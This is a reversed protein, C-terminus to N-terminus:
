ERLRAHYTQELKAIIRSHVADVEEDELTKDASRYSISFALSKKDDPINGGTFLDFVSVSEILAGGTELIDRRLTEAAATMDVILAIDRTSGPFRPLPVFPVIGRDSAILASVSLEAAYCDQKIDFLKAIKKDVRGITGLATDGSQINYARSKDYGAMKAPTLQCEPIRLRECLGGLIGKLEFLDAEAPADKWYVDGNKGSILLGCYEPEEPLEDSRIYVKGIEFLKIDINRHRINQSAAMMLSYLLRTRMFGFDDSIPNTITIPEINPEVKKMVDPKAFGTGLIEEFGFGTLIDRLDDRMTDRRHTPAFLPGKNSKCNPIKDLGYVRGIEEILDVERTLDPRYTPVTVKWARGAEVQLGLGTLTTIMFETPIDAGILKVAREPRLTVTIPDIRKAYTDVVGALVEGGALEAMLAAARDAARIPSNPDLGREFRFSAETNYGLKNRSKRIVSANFYASELLINRTDDEVESDLGGMVGGTAVGEKGNTIMLIDPDLEHVKGDLTTFKEGMKARRVVVEKSGFRDYDFAHLPQNMELMVYNCIDVINNIPRIGSDKLRKQMWDPSPGVKVNKIIRACYRPCADPDDISIKIYDSAKESSEAPKQVTPTFTGGCVVSIERAIGEACLCDPRNPTIEFNIIADDLGLTEFVPQNIPTKEDFVIIGAHDDSLGLEDEACIMGSSKVGRMTVEKIEFEGKLKAGPLALPVIQGEAVNPAGCIVSYVAQGTDVQAVTLKDANPHKELKVIRGTIVNKFHDPNFQEALCATGTRTLRDALEHASLDIGTIEQIWSYPLKM